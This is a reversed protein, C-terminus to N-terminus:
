ALASFRARFAGVARQAAADQGESDTAMFRGYKVAGAADITAFEERLIDLTATLESFINSAKIEAALATPGGPWCEALGILDYADKNKNRRRLADAKAALYATPGAVRLEQTTRGGGDPLDGELEVIRFDQDILAGTALACTNM